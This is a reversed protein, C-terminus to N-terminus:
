DGNKEYKIVFDTSFQLLFLIIKENEISNILSILKERNEEMNTVVRGFLVALM